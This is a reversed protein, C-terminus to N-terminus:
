GFILLKIQVFFLFLSDFLAKLPGAKEIDQSLILDIEHTEEGITIIKKGVVDGKKMGGYLREKNIMIEEFANNGSSKRVLFTANQSLVLNAKKVGDKSKYVPLDAIIDGKEGFSFVKFQSYGHEFLNIVDQDRDKKTPSNLVVAILRLGDKNATATLNYKADITGTKLGDAQEYKSLLTNTNTLPIKKGGEKTLVATYSPIQHMELNEPYTNLYHRALTAMDNATSLDGDIPDSLGHSTTFTTHTMGIESAKENMSSVFEAQTGSLHEALSITADNASIVAVGMMLDSVSYKVGFELWMQSGKVEWANKNTQILEDKKILGREIAESTLSLTMLKVLSAPPLLKDPNKQYLIEGDEANILIASEAKIDLMGNNEQASLFTPALLLFVLMFIFSKKMKIVEM